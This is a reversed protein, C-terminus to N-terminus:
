RHVLLAVVGTVAVAAPFVAVGFKGGGATSGGGALPLFAAVLLHSPLRMYLLSLCSM